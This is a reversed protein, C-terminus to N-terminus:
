NTLDRDDTRAALCADCTVLEWQPTVDDGGMSARLNLGCLTWTPQESLPTFAWDGAHVLRRGDPLRVM